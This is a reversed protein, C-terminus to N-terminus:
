GPRGKRSFPEFESPISNHSCSFNPEETKTCCGPENYGMKVAPLFHLRHKFAMSLPLSAARHLQHCTSPAGLTLVLGEPLGMQQGDETGDMTTRLVVCVAAEADCRLGLALSTSRTGRPQLAWISLRHHAPLEAEYMETTRELLDGKRWWAPPDFARLATQFHALM